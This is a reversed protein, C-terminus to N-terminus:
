LDLLSSLACVRIIQWSSLIEQPKSHAGLILPHDVEWAGGQKRPQSLQWHLPWNCYIGIAMIIASKLFVTYIYIYHHSVLVPDIQGFVSIHFDIYSFLWITANFLFDLYKLLRLRSTISFSTFHRLSWIYHENVDWFLTVAFPYMTM